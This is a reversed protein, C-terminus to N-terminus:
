SLSGDASCTLAIDKEVTKFPIGLTYRKAVVTGFATNGSKSATASTIKWADDIISYTISSATCAASSGTYSFTGKLTASWLTLGDSDKYTITKKGIITETSKSLRITEVSTILYSGDEMYEICTKNIDTAFTTTANLFVITFILLLLLIKKM